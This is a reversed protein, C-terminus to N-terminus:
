KKILVSTYSHHYDIEELSLTITNGSLVGTGATNAGDSYQAAFSLNNGNVSGTLRISNVGSFLVTNADVKTVTVDGFAPGSQTAYIGVFRGAADSSTSDKKCSSIFLVFTLLSFVLIKKM